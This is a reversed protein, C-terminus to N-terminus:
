CRILEADFTVLQINSVQSRHTVVKTHRQPMAHLIAHSAARQLKGVRGSEAAGDALLNRGSM